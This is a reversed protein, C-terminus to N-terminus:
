SQKFRAPRREMEAMVAEVQNPKGIIDDQLRSELLLGEEPDLYLAQNLLQKDARIADPNRTAIYRATKMAEALPDECIRTVFGLRQAEEAEFIRGTYTLERIIDDRALHRMLQTGAMDPVLGM